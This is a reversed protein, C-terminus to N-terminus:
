LQEKSFYITECDPDLQENFIWDLTKCAVVGKLHQNEVWLKGNLFSKELHTVSLYFSTLNPFQKVITNIALDFTGGYSCIDDIIIANVVRDKDFEKEVSITMGTIKGTDFDRTKDCVIIGSQIHRLDHSFRKYATKDPFILITNSDNLDNRYESILANYLTRQKKVNVLNGIYDFAVDSHVDYCEIEEVLELTEFFKALVALSLNQCPNKIRDMRAHPLYPIELKIPVGDAIEEVKEIASLLSFLESDDKYLWRITVSKTEKLNEILEVPFALHKEGAPFQTQNVEYGNVFLM